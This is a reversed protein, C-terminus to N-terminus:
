DLVWTMGGSKRSQILQITKIGDHSIDLDLLVRGKLCEFEDGIWYERREIIESLVSQILVPYM